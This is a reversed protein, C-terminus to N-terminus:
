KVPMGLQNYQDIHSSIKSAFSTLSANSSAIIAYSESDRRMFSQKSEINHLAQERPNKVPELQQDDHQRSSSM